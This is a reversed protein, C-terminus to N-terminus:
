SAWDGKKSHAGDCFPKNASDGCRCLAVMEKGGTDIANGDADVLKLEGSCLLPGNKATKIESM